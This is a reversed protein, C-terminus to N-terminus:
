IQWFILNNISKKIEAISSTLVSVMESNWYPERLLTYVPVVAQSWSQAGISFRVFKDPSKLSSFNM